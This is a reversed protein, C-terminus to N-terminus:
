YDFRYGARLAWSDNDVGNLQIEGSEGDSFYTIDRGDRLRLRRGSFGVSVSHGPRFSWDAGIDAEWGAGHGLHRYSVPHAFDGRLNWNATAEYSFWHHKLGARVSLRDNPRSESELGIWGSRWRPQYNSDLGGFDGLPPVIQEGDRMRYKGKYRALGVMPTLEHRAALAFRWGVGLSFDRATSGKPDSYSRSFEGQRDDLAYDSDRVRGGSLTRAYALHGRVTFGSAHTWGADLRIEADPLKWALESLVDPTARGSADSAIDFRTQDRRYGTSLRFYGGGARAGDVGAGVGAPVIPALTVQRPGTDGFVTMVPTEEAEVGITRTMGSDFVTLTAATPESSLLCLVSSLLIQTRRAGPSQVQVM